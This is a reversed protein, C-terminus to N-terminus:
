NVSYCHNPFFFHQRPRSGTSNGVIRRRGLAPVGGNRTEHDNNKSRTFLGGEILANSLMWEVAPRLVFYIQRHKGGNYQSIFGDFYSQMKGIRFLSYLAAGNLATGGVVRAGGILEMSNNHALLKEAALNLNLILDTPLQYDWGMPKQYHILRHMFKQAQEALSPPGMVGILWETQINYKKIPNSAHLSHVVFLAGSYPYDDKDPNRKSLDNPTVMMQMIGWGFTNVSSDGAKPMWRDIFFRSPRKKNYFIDLRTGNTYGKDSGNGWLDMFDNDEYMRVMTRYRSTDQARAAGTMLVILLFLTGCKLRAIKRIGPEM